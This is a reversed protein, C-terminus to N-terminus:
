NENFYGKVLSGDDYFVLLIGNTNAKVNQGLINTVRIIKSDNYENYSVNILGSYSFNGDFDIQKLRFYKDNNTQVIMQYDVIFNTNGNGNVIDGIQKWNKTDYSSEIIFYENNTETATTWYFMNNIGDCKVSFNLLEIPLATEVFELTVIINSSISEVELTKTLNGDVITGDLTWKNVIFWNAPTATFVIKSGDAVTAPSTIAVGDDTASITGSANSSFTVTFGFSMSSILCFLLILIKKM